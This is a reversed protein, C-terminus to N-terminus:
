QLRHCLGPVSRDIPCEQRSPCELRPCVSSPLWVQGSWVLVSCCVCLCVSHCPQASLRDSRSGRLEFLRHALALWSLCGLCLCRSPPTFIAGLQLSHRTSACCAATAHVQSLARARRVVSYLGVISRLSSEMKCRPVVLLCAHWVGAYLWKCMYM